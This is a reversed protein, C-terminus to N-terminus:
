LKVNYKVEAWHQFLRRWKGGKCGLCGHVDLDQGTVDKFVKKSYEGISPELLKKNEMLYSYVQKLEEETWLLDSQIIDEILPLEKLEENKKCESCTETKKKRM